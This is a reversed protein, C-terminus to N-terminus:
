GVVPVIAETDSLILGGPTRSGHGFSMDSLPSVTLFLSQGAPVEVAVAPLEISRHNTSGPLTDHEHIPMMNAQVVMADAATTGVSLAFFARADVALPTVDAEVTPTGAVTIPGDAIKVHQPGGVGTTTVVDGLSFPTPAGTATGLQLCAGGNTALNYTGGWAALGHDEGKLQEQFFRLSLDAFSGGVIATSCPDGSPLSAPPLANPLAHGGNYGVFISEARASPTLAQEFNKLGHNLNFLNDTIGQGFLVPIDLRRGHDVHWRPGNNDFFAVMDAIGLSGDPWEGTATGEVFALQVESPLSAAGAAFLATVWATRVVGSPALSEQLDWWTIEPALADFRTSGTEMLDTFAGVFQYGGGYSGGIAGIRPDGPADQVVWDLGAVLDVLAQVDQGEFDPDEIHAQGGSEGFGRQDFSLVAFGNSLWSGFATESNTRSGGWGHSHFVLPVPASSSARAPQYLTYCIEVATGDPEPVSEVCGQHLTHGDAQSPMAALGAFLVAALAALSTLRWKM